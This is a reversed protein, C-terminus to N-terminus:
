VMWFLGLVATCNFLVLVFPGIIVAFAYYLTGWAVLQSFALASIRLWPLPLVGAQSDTLLM